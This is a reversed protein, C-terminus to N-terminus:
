SPVVYHAAGVSRAVSRAAVAVAAVAAVVAAVYHVGHHPGALNTANPHQHLGNSRSVINLDGIGFVRCSHCVHHHHHVANM